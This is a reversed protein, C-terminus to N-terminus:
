AFAGGRTRGTLVFYKIDLVMRERTHRDVPVVPNRVPVPSAGMAHFKAYYVRTGFHMEDKKLTRIAKSGSRATLSGGLAGTRVLTDAPYGHAEKEALTIDALPLWTGRGRSHFWPDEASRLEGQIRRLAPRADDGRKALGALLREAQDIGKEKTDIQLPM